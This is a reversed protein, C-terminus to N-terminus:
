EGTTYFHFLFHLYFTLISHSISFTFIILYNSFKISILYHQFSSRRPYCLCFHQEKNELEQQGGLVIFIFKLQLLFLTSCLGTQMFSIQGVPLQMRFKYIFVHRYDLCGMATYIIHRTCHFSVCIFLIKFFFYLSKKSKIKLISSFLM